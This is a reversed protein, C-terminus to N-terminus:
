LRVTLLVLPVASGYLAPVFQFAVGTLAASVVCVGCDAASSKLLLLYSWSSM